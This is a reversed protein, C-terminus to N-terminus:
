HGSDTRSKGEYHRRTLRVENFQRSLIERTRAMIHRPNEGKKELELYLDTPLLRAAAFDMSDKSMKNFQEESVVNKFAPEVIKRMDKNAVTDLQFHPEFHEAQDFIEQVLPMDLNEEEVPPDEKTIPITHLLFGQKCIDMENEVNFPGLLIVLSSSQEMGWRLHFLISNEM